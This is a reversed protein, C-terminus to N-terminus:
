YVEQQYCKECYVIEPRDPAYSTEFETECKGTSHNHHNEKDCMCSRHWLKMPNRQKLRMQHRCNFCMKPLVFNMKKHLMFEDETIRFAKTCQHECKGEHICGIIEKTISEPVNVLEDPIKEAPLTIEYVREDRDRFGFGKELTEKKSIPFYDGAITENYAFLSLDVPFFEGFKYVRGNKDVYPMEEMQKIIKLLIKEYEEKTYRKNLISYEGRRVGYCGFLNKSSHCNISYYIDFSSYVTVCFFLRSGQIGTDTVEYMQEAHWGIGPGADYSDKLYWGGWHCFKSDEGAPEKLIDFCQHCNKSFNINDGTVNTSKFINAYRYISQKKIEVLLTRGKEIGSYTGPDFEKKLKEYEEKSYQQNGICHSKSRLNICAICDSCNICAFLFSSNNCQNSQESFCVKYCSVCSVIEYCLENRDAVYLDSSDKNFVVRNSYMVYENNESASILYSDKDGESVNCYNCNVMNTISLNILPIRELLERFQVFFPKSFNYDAGFDYPNWGDSWWFKDCVVNLKKEPAYISFMEENHGPARCERKYFTRENRYTMRRTMRCEPCFTPPPVKIKEYFSFDEPEIVFNQKCNQCIRNEVKQSSMIQPKALISTYV